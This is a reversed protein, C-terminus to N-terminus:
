PLMSFISSREWGILNRLKHFAKEHKEQRGVRSLISQTGEALAPPRPCAPTPACPQMISSQRHCGSFLMLRIFPNVAM